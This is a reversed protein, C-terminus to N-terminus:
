PGAPRAVRAAATQDHDDGILVDVTLNTLRATRGPDDLEIRVEIVRADARAAPDVNLVDNKYVMSGIEVVRGTLPKDVARSTITARGGLQVRAIDTEYVEAVVRMRDTNGITLIPKDGVQGVQEGPHSLVNLVRGDIPAHITMARMRARGLALQKSLSGIPIEARAHEMTAKALRIQTEAELRDLAFQQQLETLQLRTSKISAEGQLVAARQNDRTRRSASDSRILENYSALIDKDNALAAELREVSAAQAAIKLPTIEVIQKLKIEADEIRIRDLEMETALRVQAEELQAATAGQRATEEAYGQLYGLVQDKRVPDGRAVLLSELRDPTGVNVNIIESAPEIRGLAAVGTRRGDPAPASRQAAPLEASNGPAWLRIIGIAAFIVFAAAAGM